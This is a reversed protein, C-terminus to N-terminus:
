KFPITHKGQPFTKGIRQWQKDTHKYTYICVHMNTHACQRHTQIYTQTHQLMKHIDPAGEKLSM